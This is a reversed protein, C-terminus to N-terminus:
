EEKFLKININKVGNDNEDTVKAKIMHSAGNDISTLKLNLNEDSIIKNICIVENEKKPLLSATLIATENKEISEKDSTLHLVETDTITIDDSINKNMYTGTITVNGAGVGEYKMIAQGNSDTTAYVGTNNIGQMRDSSGGSMLDWETLDIESIYNRDLFYSYVDVIKTQTRSSDTYEYVIINNPDIHIKEYGYMIDYTNFSASKGAMISTSGMLNLIKIFRGQTDARSFLNINGLNTVDFGNLTSLEFGPGISVLTQEEEEGITFIITTNEAPPDLTAVITVIEGADVADKDSTLTISTSGEILKALPYGKNVYLQTTGEPIYFKYDTSLQQYPDTSYTIINEATDWLFCIKNITGPAFCNKGLSTVTSPIIIKTLNSSSFCVPGISTLGESLTINTLPCQMFAGYGIETVDSSIFVNDIGQKSLFAFDGIEKVNFIQVTHTEEGDEYHHMFQNADEYFYTNGNEYVYMDGDIYKEKSGDGWYIVVNDGFDDGLLSFTGTGTFSFTISAENKKYLIGGDQLIISKVEKNDIMITEADAFVM